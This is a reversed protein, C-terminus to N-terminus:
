ARRHLLGLGTYFQVPTALALFLWNVWPAHSWADLLGFDRGMSLFFLPAAFVVGTLFKRTQDRIEARRAAAEADEIEEDKPRVVGYGAKEVVSVIEDLDTMSPIYEVSARETAFNVSASVVGPIKRNLAREINAACNACTMGTVPLEVRTRAVGFGAGEIRDVLDRVRVAEPDYTM